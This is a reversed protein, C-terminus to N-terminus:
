IGFTLLAHTIHCGCCFVRCKSKPSTPVNEDMMDLHMVVSVNATPQDM